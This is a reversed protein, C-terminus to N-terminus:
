SLLIKDKTQYNFKVVRKSVQLQDKIKKPVQPDDMTIKKDALQQCFYAMQAMRLASNHGVIYARVSWPSFHAENNSLKKSYDKVTFAFAVEKLLGPLYSNNEISYIRDIDSQKVAPSALDDFAERFARLERQQIPAHFLSKHDQDNEPIQLDLGWGTKTYFDGALAVVDGASLNLDLPVPIDDVKNMMTLKLVNDASPSLNRSGKFYPNNFGEIRIQDGSHKHENTEM